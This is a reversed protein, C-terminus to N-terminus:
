LRRDPREHGEFVACVWPQRRRRGGDPPAPGGPKSRARRAAM